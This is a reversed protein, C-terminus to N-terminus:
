IAASPTQLVASSLMFLFKVLPKINFFLFHATYPLEERKQEQKEMKYGNTMIQIQVRWNLFAM